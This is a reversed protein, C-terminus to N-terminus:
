NRLDEGSKSMPHHCTDYALGSHKADNKMLSTILSVGENVTNLLM